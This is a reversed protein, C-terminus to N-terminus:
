RWDFWDHVGAVKALGSLGPPANEITLTQGLASRVQCVLVLLASSGREFHSLDLRDRGLCAQFLADWDRDSTPLEVIM